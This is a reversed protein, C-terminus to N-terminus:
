HYVGCISCFGRGRGRGRGGGRTFISNSSRIIENNDLSDNENNYSSNYKYEKIYSKDKAKKYSEIFYEMESKDNLINCNIYEYLSKYSQIENLKKKMDKIFSEVELFVGYNKKLEDIFNKEDMKKKTMFTILLLQNGRQSTFAYKLVDKSNKTRMKSLLNDVKLNDYDKPNYPIPKDNSNKNNNNDGLLFFLGRKKVILNTIKKNLDESSKDIFEKFNNELELENKIFTKVSIKLNNQKKNENYLKNINEDKSLGDIIDDLLGKNDCFQFNDKLNMIKDNVNEFEGNKQKSVKNNHFNDKLNMIKDNVNEVDVNKQKSDKNNNLLNLEKNDLTDFILQKMTYKCENGHFTWYMQRIFLEQFLCNWMKETIELDSFFLLMMFNGIDPILQKDFDYNNSKIQNLYKKVYNDFEEKFEEVLKKFLLIYHFYCIIFAESLANENKFIGIIMKNLIIPLIEFIQEAKFDYEKIGLPGYKMVSFSNLITSKNKKYHEENIYIPVWANYFENNASKFPIDFYNELKQEKEFQSIYADYSLLEPIPYLEIKNRGVNYRVIPYGLLIEPADIYNLKLTFCTLYQKIKELRKEDNKKNINIEKNKNNDNDNDYISPTNMIDENYNLPPSDELNFGTYKNNNNNTIKSNTIITENENLNNKYQENLNKNYQINYKNNNNMNKQIKILEKEEIEKKQELMIEKYTRETQNKQHILNLPDKRSPSFERFRKKDLLYNKKNNTSIKKFHNNNNEEIKMEEDIIEKPITYQKKNTVIDSNIINNNNNINNIENSM